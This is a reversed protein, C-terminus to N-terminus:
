AHAKMMTRPAWSAREAPTLEGFRDQAQVEVECGDLRTERAVDLACRLAAQRQDFRGVPEGNLFLRWAGESAVVDIRVKPRPRARLTDMDMYGSMGAGEGNM